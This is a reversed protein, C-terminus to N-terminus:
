GPTVAFRASRVGGPEIPATPQGIKVILIAAIGTDDPLIDVLIEERVTLRDPPHDPKAARLILNNADRCREARRNTSRLITKDLNWEPGEGTDKTERERDICRSVFARGPSTSSL